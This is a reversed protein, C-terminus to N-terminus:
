SHSPPLNHKYINPWMLFFLIRDSVYSRYISEERTRTNGSPTLSATFLYMWLGSKIVSPTHMVQIRIRAWVTFCIVQHQWFLGNKEVTFNSSTVTELVPNYWVRLNCFYNQTHHSQTSWTFHGQGQACGAQRWEKLCVTKWLKGIVELRYFIWM